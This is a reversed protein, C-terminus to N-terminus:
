ERGKQANEIADAWSRLLIAEGTFEAADLLAVMQRMRGVSPLAARLRQIEAKLEALESLARPLLARAAAIFRVNADTEARMRANRGGDPYSWSSTFMACIQVDENGWRANISSDDRTWPEPTAKECLELGERIEQETLPTM